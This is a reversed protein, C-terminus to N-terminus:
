SSKTLEVFYKLEESPYKCNSNSQVNSQQNTLHLFSNIYCNVPAFQQEIDHVLNDIKNENASSSDNGEENGQPKQKDNTTQISNEKTQKGTFTISNKMRIEFSPNSMYTISVSKIKALNRKNGAFIELKRIMHTNIPKCLHMNSIPKGNKNDCKERDSEFSVLASFTNQKNNVNNSVQILRYLPSNSNSDDHTQNSSDDDDDDLKLKVYFLFQQQSSANVNVNNDEIEILIRYNYLCHSSKSTKLYYKLKANKSASDRYEKYTSDQQKNNFRATLASQPNSQNIIENFKLDSNIRTSVQQQNATNLNLNPEFAEEDECILKARLENAHGNFQDHSLNDYLGIVSHACKMDFNGCSACEGANFSSWSMCKYSVSYCSDDDNREKSTETRGRRRTTPNFFESSVIRQSYSHACTLSAAISSCSPQDSGGNVYVDVHGVNDGSGFRNADTHLAVVFSADDLSLKSIHQPFKTPLEDNKSGLSQSISDGSNGSNSFCPGAPDLATIRRAKTPLLKQELKNAQSVSYGSIHAGLSHGIFHFKDLSLQRSQLSLEKALSSLFRAISNGVVKANTLSGSYANALKNGGSWDVLLVNANTNSLILKKIGCVWDSSASAMFGHIIVYSLKTEDFVNTKLLERSVTQRLNDDNSLEESTPLDIKALYNNLNDGCRDNKVFESNYFAIFPNQSFGLGSTTFCQYNVVYRQGGTDRRYRQNTNYNRRGTQQWSSQYQSSSNNRNSRRSYRNFYYSDVLQVFLLITVLCLILEKKKRLNVLM